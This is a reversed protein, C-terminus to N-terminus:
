KWVLCSWEGQVFEEPSGLAAYAEAVRAAQVSLIGSLVLVSKKCAMIDQAMDILPQALINAVVLDFTKGAVKEMSGLGVTKRPM